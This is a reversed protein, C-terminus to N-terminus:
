TQGFSKSFHSYNDFEFHFHISKLIIQHAGLNRDNQLRTVVFIHFDQLAHVIYKHQIFQGLRISYFFIISYFFYFYRSIIRDWSGFGIKKSVELHVCQLIYPILLGEPKASM